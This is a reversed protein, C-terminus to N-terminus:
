FAITLSLVLGVQGLHYTVIPAHRLFLMAAVPTDAQTATYVVAADRGTAALAAILAHPLVMAALFVFVRWM